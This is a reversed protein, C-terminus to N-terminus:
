GHSYPDVSTEQSAGTEPQGLIAFVQQEGETAQIGAVLVDIKGGTQNWIEPGTTMYHAQINDPSHYQNLMYPRECKAAIAKATEYYSQPDDPPVATPCIHVEAGFAKLTDIKESSMKDPITLIAKHGHAAAYMAVAAGTNGSTAEIITSNPKLEGSQDAANLMYIAMRDKVSATPNFFELKALITAKIGRSATLKQIKVLPTNGVSQTIDDLYNLGSM